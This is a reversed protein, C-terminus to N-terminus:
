PAIPNTFDTFYETEAYRDRQNKNRKRSTMTGSIMADMWINKLPQMSLFFNLNHKQYNTSDAIGSNKMSSATFLLRANEGGGRLSAYADYQQGLNYYSNAWNTSGYYNIDSQDQLYAPLQDEGFPLNYADYFQQRFSREYAANTPRITQPPAVVGYSAQVTVKETKGYSNEADNTQIWVAGNAALPGLQALRAPDKIVEVSLVNKMDVGSLMNNASGIPNVNDQKIDYVYPHRQTLPMGNVYVAPQTATLDRGSFIPSSIGRILLHQISGPEGNNEQIYLGAVNGKLYQQISNYPSKHLEVVDLTDGSQVVPTQYLEKSVAKSITTPAITDLPSPDTITDQLNLPNFLKDATFGEAGWVQHGMGLLGLVLLTGGINRRHYCPFTHKMRRM